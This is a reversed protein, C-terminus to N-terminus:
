CWKRRSVFRPLMSGHGSRNCRPCDRVLDFSGVMPLSCFDVLSFRLGLFSFGFSALFYVPQENAKARAPVPEHSAGPM